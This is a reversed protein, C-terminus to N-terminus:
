FEILCWSDSPNKSELWGSRGSPCFLCAQRIGLKTVFGPRRNLPKKGLDISPSAPMVVPPDNTPNNM